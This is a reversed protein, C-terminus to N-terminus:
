FRQVITVDFRRRRADALLSYGTQNYMFYQDNTAVIPPSQDLVNQIGFRLERTWRGAPFRYAAALDLYFQPRIFRSGQLRETEEAHLEAFRGHSIVRYRGYYQGDLGIEFPGRSWEVGAHGRWTLAGDFHNALDYWPGATDYRRRYTPQWTIAGALRVQGGKGAPFLYEGKLDVADIRTSGINLATTDIRTILGGTYGRAADAETLPQRKIRGPFRDENALFYRIEGLDTLYRLGNASTLAIEGVKELRTYDISFRLKEDPTTLIAGASFSRAREPELDPSGGVVVSVHREIPSGGRRPDRAVDNYPVVRSSIQDIGPPLVGTSLSARLLITPAPRFRIGATYVTTSRDSTALTEFLAGGRENESPATNRYRDNRIALQVELSRLWAWQSASSLLPARLEAYYSRVQQRVEPLPREVIRDLRTETLSSGPVHESRDEALMSVTLPGGALDFIPGAVRASLQRLRNELSFEFRNPRRYADLASQFGAYNSFPNPVTKASPFGLLGEFAEQSPSDGTLLARERAKGITYDINARWGRSLDLILGTTLRFSRTRNKLVNDFGPMPFTVTVPQEFPNLAPDYVAATQIYWPVVSRATNRMWLGDVFLEAGDAIARRVNLLMATRSIEPLLTRKAGNADPSLSLDITGANRLLVSPDQVQALPAHTISSGLPTGGNSTLTLPVPSRGLLPSGGLVNISASTPYQSLFQGLDNRAKLARARYAFIRDGFALGASESHGITLMIDTRGDDPTFGLNADIRQEPADGRSTAGNSVAIRGGRYDRELVFNVVGATAGPGYIGGATSTITEIREISALPLANIDPQYFGSDSSPASPLRRGDVLILTQRPGLGRLNIQSRASGLNDFTLQAPGSMQANVPLRTRLFSEADDAHSGAVDERTAVQYPQIDSETRRIDANQSRRGIVLIEPVPAENAALARPRQPAPVILVTGGAGHRHTLGSDQLLRGLAEDLSLRGSLAPARRRGILAPSFLLEVGAREALQSLSRALSQPPLQIRFTAARGAASAPVAAIFALPIAVFSTRM